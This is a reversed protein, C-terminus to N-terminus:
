AVILEEHIVLHKERKNFLQKDCPLLVIQTICLISM